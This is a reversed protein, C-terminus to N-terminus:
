YQFPTRVRYIRFQLPILNFRQSSLCFPRATFRSSSPSSLIQITKSLIPTTTESTTLLLVSRIRPATNALTMGIRSAQVSRKKSATATEAVPSPELELSRKLLTSELLTTWRQMRRPYTFLPFGLSKNKLPHPSQPPTSLEFTIQSPLPLVANVGPAADGLASPERASIGANAPVSPPIHTAVQM